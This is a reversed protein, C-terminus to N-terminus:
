LERSEGVSAAAAPAPAGGHRRRAREEAAACVNFQKARAPDIEGPELEDDAYIEHYCAPSTCRLVCNENDHLQVDHMDKAHPPARPAKACEADCLRKRATVARRARPATKAHALNQQNAVLAVLAVLTKKMTSVMEVMTVERETM